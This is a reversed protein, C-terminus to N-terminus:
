TVFVVLLLAVIFIARRYQMVQFQSVAQVANVYLCIVSVLYSWQRCRLAKWVTSTETNLADTQLPSRALNTLILYVGYPNVMWIYNIGQKQYQLLLLSSSSASDSIFTKKKLANKKKWFNIIINLSLNILILQIGYSFTIWIYNMLHKM